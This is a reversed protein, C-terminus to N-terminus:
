SRWPIERYTKGYSKRAMMRQGLEFVSHNAALHATAVGLTDAERHLEQLLALTTASTVVNGPFSQVWGSLTNDDESPTVGGSIANGGTM